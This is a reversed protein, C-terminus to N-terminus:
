PHVKTNTNGTLMKIAESIQRSAGYTGGRGATPIITCQTGLAIRGLIKMIVWLGKCGGWKRTGLIVRRLTPHASGM